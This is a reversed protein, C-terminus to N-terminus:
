STKRQLNGEGPELPSNKGPRLLHNGIYDPRLTAIAMAAYVPRTKLSLFQRLARAGPFHAGTVVRRNDAGHPLGTIAAWITGAEGIETLELLQCKEIQFVDGVQPDALWVEAMRTRAAQETLEAPTARRVADLVCEGDKQLPQLLSRDPATYSHVIGGDDTVEVVAPGHFSGVSIVEALRGCFLVLQDCELKIVTMGDDLERYYRRRRGIGLSTINRMLLEDMVDTMWKSRHTM